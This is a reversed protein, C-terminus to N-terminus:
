AVLKDALLGIIRPYILIKVSDSSPRSTVGEVTMNTKMKVKGPIEVETMDPFCVKLDQTLNNVVVDFLYTGKTTTVAYISFADNSLDPVFKITAGFLKEVQMAQM